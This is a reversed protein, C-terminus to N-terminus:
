KDTIQLKYKLAEVQSQHWKLAGEDSGIFVHCNMGPILAGLIVAIITIFGVIAAFNKM